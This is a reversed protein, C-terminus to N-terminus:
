FISEKTKYTKKRKTSFLDTKQINCTNAMSSDLGLDVTITKVSASALSSSLSWSTVSAARAFFMGIVDTNDLWHEDLFRRSISPLSLDM